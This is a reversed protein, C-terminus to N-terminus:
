LTADGYRPVVRVFANVTISPQQPDNTAIRIVQAFDQQEGSPIQKASFSVSILQVTSAQESFAFRFRNDAASVNTIRFPIESQIIINKTVMEDPSLIGVLMPSPKAQISARVVGQVPLVIEVPESKGPQLENTTFRLVDRVYGAPADEELIVTIKYTVNGQERKVEEARAYIYPQSREVRILAWGPQGTYEMLLTREAATGEAVAGFEVSGPTLVVDPRIYGSVFLQVADIRRVGNIIRELQVTLVSSRNQLHQGSTNLRVIVAGTEGPILLPTSFKASVCTCSSRLSVFRVNSNLTNTLEFLFEADAGIAVSGFDHRQTDFLAAGWSEQAASQEAVVVCFLFLIFLLRLCWAPVKPNKECSSVSARLITPSACM